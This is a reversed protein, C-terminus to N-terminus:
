LTRILWSRLRVLCSDPAKPIQENGLIIIDDPSELDRPTTRYSWKFYLHVFLQVAGFIVGMSNPILIYLDFRLISYTMWCIANLFSISSTYFPLYEINKTQFVKKIILLPAGYMLIGSIVCLIDLVDTNKLPGQSYVLVDFLVGVLFVLELALSRFIKIRLHRPSFKLFLGIYITEILFGVGNITLLPLNNPHVVPLAYVISLMCNLLTFLDSLLSFDDVAGKSVITVYMSVSSLYFGISTVTGLIEFVIRVLDISFLKVLLSSYASFSLLFLRSLSM